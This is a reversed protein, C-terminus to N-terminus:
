LPLYRNPGLPFYALLASIYEDHTILLRAQPSTLLQIVYKQEYRSIKRRLLPSLCTHFLVKLLPSQRM